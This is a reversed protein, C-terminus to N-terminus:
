DTVFLPESYYVSESTLPHQCDTVPEFALKLSPLGGNYEDFDEIIYHNPGKTGRRVKLKIRLPNDESVLVRNAGTTLRSYPKMGDDIWMHDLFNDNLMIETTGKFSFIFEVEVERDIFLSTTEMHSKFEFESLDGCKQECSSIAIVGVFFLIRTKFM